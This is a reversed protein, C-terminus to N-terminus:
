PPATWQSPDNCKANSIRHTSLATEYATGACQPCYRAFWEAMSAEGDPHPVVRYGCLSRRRPYRKGVLALHKGNRDCTMGITFKVVESSEETAVPNGERATSTSPAVWATPRM